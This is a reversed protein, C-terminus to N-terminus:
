PQTCLRAFELPLGGHRLCIMQLRSCQAFLFNLSNKVTLISSVIQSLSSSRYPGPSGVSVSCDHVDQFGDRRHCHPSRGLDTQDHPHCCTGAYSRARGPRCPQDTFCGVGTGGTTSQRGRQQLTACRRRARLTPLSRGRRHPGPSRASSPVSRRADPKPSSGREKGVTAPANVVWINFSSPGSKDRGKRKM